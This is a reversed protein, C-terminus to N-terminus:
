FQVTLLSNRIVDGWQEAVQAPYNGMIIFSEKFDGTVLILREFEINPGLIFRTTYLIADKGNTLKVEERNILQISQESLSARTYSMLVSSVNQDLRQAIITGAIKLNIFGEFEQSLEFGEPKFISVNANPLPFFKGELDQSFVNSISTLAFFGFCLLTLVRQTISGKPSLIRM